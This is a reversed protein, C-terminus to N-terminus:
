ITEDNSEISVEYIGKLIELFGRREKDEYGRCIIESIEENNFLVCSKRGTYGEPYFIGMYDFVQDKQIQMIAMIMLKKRMDKLVVVSGIPLLQELKEQVDM